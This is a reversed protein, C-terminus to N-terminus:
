KLDGGYFTLHLVASLVTQTFQRNLNRDFSEVRSFVFSSSLNDAVDTDASFSFARRGNDTLRSERSVTLPNLVFNNGHTNEYSVRTRIDSKLKWDPPVAWPKAIEFSVDANGNKAKLGPRTERRQSLTYGVNASLPRAGAFVIALNAPFSRTVMTARDAAFTPDLTLDADVADSSTTLRDPQRANTQRTQVARATGGVSSIVRRLRDPKFSWRLSLDPFVVQTGDTVAQSDDARRTWNRASILQYRNALSMGLPLAITHNASLQNVLGASTAPTDHIERFNSMGGFAFQYTLPAGSASQDFVSVLSRNFNVDVPQLANLLRYFVTTSDVHLKAFKPLDVTVGATGTQSNGLRRPLKVAGTSDELRLFNLTNPDRLMNYSSGFDLRPKFWQSFAPTFNFGAQMERERELGADAGLIRVRDSGTIIGLESDNGYGRLDRVSNFDLRGSISSTPRLQLSTGNKWTSTLGAIRRPIDDLAEAPKLYTLRDDSGRSYVSTLHLEAPAWRSLEPMLARSINYDVGVTLNSARGDEYESRAAGSTYTGALTLNNLIPALRSDQIPTARSMAFTVSTASTRPTRLGDIIDGEIDSRSLFLPDSSSSSYNVSVPVSWGFSKSLLKELHFASSMNFSNDTLFTPQEALQRFHPDRRTVNMRIDAFDSALVSVSLQGAFGATNVVGGLRIDDVWLELTDAPSFVGNNGVRIIGVALEQVGALNPPTVGPDSSYAVYGDSCAFYRPGSPPLPTREILVSDLGTCSKNPSGQLYENQIDGRLKFLKQFDVKVEPLWATRDNGSNLPTRYMYFNDPDRGIKVYFQLDGQSGWGNRVGRAWLRLEKYAMFNKEGEPFRFYAEARDYQQLNGATLRLSRENIQIRNTEFQSRKADPEDVVGPPSEYSLGNPLNRDQTGIVGANVFGTSSTEAGIGRLTADSRKLWPAGTLRLRAIPVQTYENDATGSGSIMTIRLARMRRLLPAGISDSASRFPIRILVWCRDEPAPGVVLRPSTSCRGVRTYSSSDALNVVYRRVQEANREASTLNLVNDGDIDEEDLRNNGVTCDTAADGLLRVLSYGGRCTQYNGLVSLTPATGPITDTVVNIAGEVDGALGNDNVGVNFARSFPDRESDLRDFGQIQKGSYVTDRSAPQNSQLRVKLTDPAFAVTNESIDGFDLVLTTNRGRRAASVPVQAWFEISEIHSLDSGSPGLATRISRWRRGAPTNAINWKFSAGEGRLGGVALPYLTMWLLPEPASLGTGIVNTLPDIDEIRVRVASGRADIGDSQWAMTSARNLDLVEPGFQSPIKRGLVPQSSYYWSTEDLPVQLGGEGEFSEIFAQGASNPKPRSAAFEGSINVRSPATSEGYPLKSVLSTLPSADFSMQATVGAMLSAAPEFGLPPRNYTSNQRQSIATFALSGNDLPFEATAGLISTPTEAFVPNEEFQVSVQRPHPFLTDPRAFTVQGLDYDVTYDTGRTLPIGDVFLRESNPRIQVAGLMLSGSEGSGRAQYRVRIHYVSQPRQASRVYESPTTYITDNSPNTGRALGDRAFPRLSPFVLFQDRIVPAAVTGLGLEFNPDAPRPWLRNEIDFTSSNTRQSLGFVQLYTNATDGGAQVAKEQDDSTGTVIKVSVSAREVEAGGIRYVSRIERNFAADQPTVQPDWLLNAFQDTQSRYELAPTGGTTVHVTDRGNVRVRYAVVLRENNISLPRVLAIWLQSPDVYYDIGERLREYVPGRRSRPDGLIRFQPGSPNAPQGGILLRYLFVRTPRLTDPLQSALLEMRRRDLIDVNPYGGLIRPDVTFFFRRPEFQHDEIRRDVASLTKDGVTFVRDNIVNGKQQAVIGRIRASGVKAIAQLGYNGSPIGATIFRSAPPTFTVNGLEVRQLLDNPKGEYNVSINNSGDFERQTDYDVDVHIRDAVVGGSKANFQFDTLPVFASQCALAPQAFGGVACRENLNKEARLELRANLQLTLDSHEAIIDGARAAVKRQNKDAPETAYSPPKETTAFTSAAVQGWVAQVISRMNQQFATARAAEIQQLARRYSERQASSIVTPLQLALTDLPIRIGIRTTDVPVQARAPVSACAIAILSSFIARFHIVGSRPARAVQAPDCTL